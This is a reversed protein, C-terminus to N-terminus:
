MSLDPPTSLISAAGQSTWANGNNTPPTFRSCRAILAVTWWWGTCCKNCLTSIGHLGCPAMLVSDLDTEITHTLTAAPSSTFPDTHGHSQEKGASFDAIAILDMKPLPYAIGFYDKYFPLTKM